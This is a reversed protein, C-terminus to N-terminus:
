FCLIKHYIKPLFIILGTCVVFIVFLLVAGAAIDKAQKILPDVDPSVKDCLKEIATNFAEAMFVGGICLMVVCWEWCEIDFLFGFAVVCVFAVLHIQANAEKRFLSVIGNWAYRFSAARKRIYKNRM